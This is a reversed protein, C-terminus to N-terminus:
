QVDDAAGVGHLYSRPSDFRFTDAASVGAGKVTLAGNWEVGSYSSKRSAGEWLIRVRRASGRLELPVVHIKELGRYLEVSELSSAGAVFGSINPFTSTTYEAGM